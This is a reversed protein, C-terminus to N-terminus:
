QGGGQSSKAGQPIAQTSPQDSSATDTGSEISPAAGDEPGGLDELSHGVQMATLRWAGMALHVPVSVTFALATWAAVRAVEDSQAYVTETHREAQHVSSRLFHFRYFRGVRGPPVVDIPEPQRM